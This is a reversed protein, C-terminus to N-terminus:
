EHRDAGESKLRPSAPGDARWAKWVAPPLNEMHGLLTVLTWIRETSLVSKWGPMGTWRIGNRLIFFTDHAPMDPATELFQPAPPYLALGIESQPRAADGHCIACREEYIGLGRVLTAADAPLPDRLRPARRNVSADLFKMAEDMELRSPKRSARPDLYGLRLFLYGGAGLVAIAVIAGLLFTKM